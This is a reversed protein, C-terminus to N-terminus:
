QSARFPGDKFRGVRDHPGTIRVFYVTQELGSEIRISDPTQDRPNNLLPLSNSWKGSNGRYKFAGIDGQWRAIEIPKDDNEFYILKTSQISPDYEMYMGFSTPAGTTGQLPNLTLGNIATKTGKFINDGDPYDALISELPSTMISDRISRTEISILNNAVKFRIDIILSLAQMMIASALSAIMLTVIVELLTFGKSYEKTQRNM